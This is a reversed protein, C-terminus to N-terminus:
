EQSTVATKEIVRVLHYAVSSGGPPPNRVRTRRVQLVYNFGPEHDFGQIGEYLPQWEHDISHRVMLCTAAAGGICEVAYPAVFLTFEERAELIDCASLVVLLMLLPAFSLRKM